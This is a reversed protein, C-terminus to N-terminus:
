EDEEKIKNLLELAFNDPLDAEIKLVWINKIDIKHCRAADKETMVIPLQESFSFDEETFQYHDPFSHEIVKFGLGKLTVFFKSPNGIGAVGHIVKGLPWADIAVRKQDSLRVWETAKFKMIANESIGEKTLSRSSSIIFDVSEIREISERLPGAPLCLSNGIGRYGDFIVIEIDRGLQYHQLGDDSIIVNCDTDEIMQKVAEVRNPSVYVPVNTNKFILRPEDGSIRARTSDNVILPYKKARGGYGRSIVGPKYGLESLKKTLWIVFPTKGTGGAVINGVVILPINTNWTKTSGALFKTLRRKSIQKTILSFPWLLWLWLSKKYWAKELYPTHDKSPPLSSLDYDEFEKVAKAEKPVSDDKFQKTHLNAYHKGKKLLEKHTGQEVIKGEDLVVIKDASEITSLRHAVVLTTRGRTLESMADQIYEESESDLASTAEDLILIPSDKLIARAIAIRQRQGGSLLVGDDGVVTEYGDPLAKIFEDAHAKESASQILDFEESISGYSINKNITDNFLTINQGVLSIHSRLNNIEYEELDIGDITLNGTFDGYFRPILSVLTTKGAGSKGVFAVTEGPNITLNINKLVESSDFNYSFSLDKFEILGQIKDNEFTGENKEPEEDLQEFIDSAAALGKQIQSNIESLQRVPKALMGAAGFFAVFGGPSMAELVTPDLALWTILALAASVLFQILPSALANTAELKLNQMRNNDSARFFRNVEYEEGGFAKVEKYASITESAVHTVDGMATQIQNSIKRLRRGAYAVVVAIFPAAIFFISALKSNLLMLYTVLGIVLLGERILIKLANTAAGTVQMVNFTIRSVLHGSSRTDFFSSPLVPIKNFLDTRLEHVLRNSISALLYNGVFFSVGRILAILILLIPWILRLDDSPNDVYDIVRKLWEAFAVQSGAFVAFGLISILFQPFYPLVYLILRGYIKFDSPKTKNLLDTNEM